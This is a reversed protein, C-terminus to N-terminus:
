VEEKFEKGLYKKMNSGLEIDDKVGFLKVYKNVFDYYEVYVKNIITSRSCQVFDDNDLMKLIDAIRHYVLQLCDNKTYIKVGARGAIIHTIEDVKVSYLIGDKRFYVYEKKPLPVPIEIAEKVTKLVEKPDFPKEIYNYCHLEKYAALKPDELSTIFIVPTYQYRKNDRIQNVFDIGSVDGPVKTDLIIDILFVDFVNFSLMYNAQAMNYAEFIQIDNIDSLIRKLAKMHAENDELILINKM